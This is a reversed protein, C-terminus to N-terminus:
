INYNRVVIRMIGARNLPDDDEPPLTDTFPNSRWIWLKGGGDINLMIGSHPIKERAQALVDLMLGDTQARTWIVGTLITNELIDTESVTYTIYPLDPARGGSPIGPGFEIAHGSRFAKLPEFPLRGRNFFSSWFAHLADNVNRM